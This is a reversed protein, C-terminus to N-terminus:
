LMNFQFFYYYGGQNLLLWSILKGSEPNFLLYGYPKQPSRKNFYGLCNLPSEKVGKLFPTYAISDNSWYQAPKADINDLGVSDIFHKFQSILIGFAKLREADKPTSHDTPAPPFDLYHDLIYQQRNINAPDQELFHCLETLTAYYRQQQYPWKKDAQAKASHPCLAAVWLILSASAQIIRRLSLLLRKM